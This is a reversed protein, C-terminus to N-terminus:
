RDRMMAGDWQVKNFLMESRKRIGAPLISSIDEEDDRADEQKTLLELIQRATLARHNFSRLAIMEKKM